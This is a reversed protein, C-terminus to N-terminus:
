KSEREKLAEEAEERTLFVTKGFDDFDWCDCGSWVLRDQKKIEIETVTGVDVGDGYDIDYVTDGVKCPLKILTCDLIAKRYEQLEALYERLQIHELKCEECDWEKNRIIDDLHSIAEKLEM